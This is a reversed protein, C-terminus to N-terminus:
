YATAYRCGNDIVNTDHLSLRVYQPTNAYDFRRLRTAFARQCAYRCHRRFRLRPTAAHCFCTPATAEHRRRCRLRIDVAYRQCCHHSMYRQCCADAPTIAAFADFFLLPLRLCARTDLMHLMAACVFMSLM